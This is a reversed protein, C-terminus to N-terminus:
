KLWKRMEELIILTNTDFRDKGIVTCVIGDSHRIGIIGDDSYYNWQTQPEPYKRMIARANNKFSIAEDETLNSQQMRKKAHPKWNSIVIDEVPYAKGKNTIGLKLLERDLIVYEIPRGNIYQAYYKLDDWTDIDLYKIRQFEDLTPPLNEKGLIGIYKKYQKEDVKKNVISKYRAQGEPTRNAKVSRFGRVNMREVQTPLGSVESLKHYKDTLLNINYQAERRLDDDGVAKAM